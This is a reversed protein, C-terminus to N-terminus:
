AGNGGTPAGAGPRRGFGGRAFCAGDVPDTIAISTATVAGTDDSKGQADACRGVQVAKASAKQQATITTKADVTVTKDITATSGPSGSTFDRAAVVITSGSVSKVAGTVFSGTFTPAGSPRAGTPFGSPRSGDTPFGSPRQGGGFGGGFGSTCERNVAATVSITTARIASATSDGTDSRAVVCDGAKIGSVPVKVEQTFTTTGTWSVAVQGDQQTQMQATTGDVAAILGYTGPVRGGGPFGNGTGGQRQQGTGAGASGSPQASAPATTANNGAPQSRSSSGGCAPLILAAVGGLAAVALIHKSRM